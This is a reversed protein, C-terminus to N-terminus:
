SLFVVCNEFLEQKKKYLNEGCIQCKDLENKVVSSCKPCLAITDLEIQLRQRNARLYQLLQEENVDSLYGLFYRLTSRSASYERRTKEILRDIQEEWNKM